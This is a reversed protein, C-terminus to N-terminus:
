LCNLDKLDKRLLKRKYGRFQNIRKLLNLYVDYSTRWFCMVVNVIMNIIVLGMVFYGMAERANGQINEDHFTFVCIMFFSICSENFIELRNAIKNNYPRFKAIYTM